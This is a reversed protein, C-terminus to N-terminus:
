RRGRLSDLFISTSIYKDDLTYGIMDGRDNMQMISTIGATGDPKNKVISELDIRVGPKPVLYSHFREEVPSSISSIVILNNDNFELNNSITPYEPTGEVFYTKFRNHRDWIGIREIGDTVFSYGLVEDHNNIDVAWSDPETPQPALITAQKTRTDFKFGRDGLGNIHTIGAIIDNNNIWLPSIVVPITPGFDLPIHQENKYLGVTMNWDQDAWYMLVTGRDNIALVESHIEGPMRPILRTGQETFLAAQGWYNEWDQIVLGGVVGRNNAANPWGPQLLKTVGDKYSVVYDTGFGLTDSGSGYIVGNNAVFVPIFFYNEPPPTYDNLNVFNYVPKLKKILSPPFAGGHGLHQIPQFRSPNAQVLAEYTEETINSVNGTLCPDIFRVGRTKYMQVAEKLAERRDRGQEIFRSTGAERLVCGRTGQASAVQTTLLMTTMVALVVLFRSLNTKMHISRAQFDVSGSEISKRKNIFLFISGTEKSVTNVYTLYRIFNKFILLTVQM